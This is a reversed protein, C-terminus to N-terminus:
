IEGGRLFHAGSRGTSRNKLELIDELVRRAENASNRMMSPPQMPPLEGLAKEIAQELRVARLEWDLQKLEM